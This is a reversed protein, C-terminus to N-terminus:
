PRRSSSCFSAAQYPLRNLFTQLSGSQKYFFVSAPSDSLCLSLCGAFQAALALLLERLFSPASLPTSSGGSLNLDEALPTKQYCHHLSPRLTYWSCWGRRRKAKHNISKAKLYMIRQVQIETPCWKYFCDVIHTM